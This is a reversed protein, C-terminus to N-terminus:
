SNCVLEFTVVTPNPLIVTGKLNTGDPDPPFVVAASSFTFGDLKNLGAFCTLSWGSFSIQKPKGNLDVNKNLKIPAKLAGLFAVTAGGASLTFQKSYVADALFSKFQTQDLIRATQNTISIDTTGKLHYEPLDVKMYPKSSDSENTFLNLTMPKLDVTVGAPIKLTSHLSYVVSDPTPNMISAAHIPLDADDM